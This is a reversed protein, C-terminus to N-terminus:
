KDELFEKWFDKRFTALIKPYIVPNGATANFKTALTIQKIKDSKLAEYLLDLNEVTDVIGFAWQTMGFNGCYDKVFTPNAGNGCIIKSINFHGKDTINSYKFNIVGNKLISYVCLYIFDGNKNNSMWKKRPEYASESHLVDMKLEDNKAVLSFITSFMFNPIFEMLKLDLLEIVGDQGKIKTLNGVNKSNKLCYFDYPTTAGFTKLGDKENHIELYEMQKSRLLLQTDKFRGDVNRWGSPHVNVNYGGEVTLELARKIFKDWLAQSKKNGEILEQYPPNQVCIDFKDVGWVDKAHQDFKDDLFSGKYINM